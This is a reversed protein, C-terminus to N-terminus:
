PKLARLVLKSPDAAPTTWDARSPHSARIVKLGEHNTFCISKWRRDNKEVFCDIQDVACTKKRVFDGAQAGLCLIVRPRLQRIVACHFPWCAETLQRWNAIDSVKRSREFVVNSSPVEGPELDLNKLLHQIRSQMRYKGPPKGGWSEDSYESWMDPKENLVKSTYWAVTKSAQKTPDGGPNLGLIYLERHKLFAARGSFFTIGSKCQLDLPIYKAFDEIM